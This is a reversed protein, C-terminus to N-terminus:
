SSEEPRFLQLPLRGGRTDLDAQVAPDDATLVDGLSILREADPSHGSDPAWVTVHQQYCVYRRVPAPKTAM